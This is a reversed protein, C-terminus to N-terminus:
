YGIACGDKRPDSGGIFNGKQRDIFIAQGGGITEESFEVKHGKKILQNYVEKDISKELKYNNELIFGRPLDIAEQISLGFDFINQLIHSQGVPQYQGGMVGYSLIVKDEKDSVLGPIITHLPRKQGEIMNPHNRELRFNVGRNQLLVGTKTSTIGSGFAFCISNIFSVTNQDKDVVTLYITNPHATISHNKPKYTKNLSIKNVLFDIYKPDLLKKYNFNNFNPDGINDERQEYAIKTAEAQLHFRESSLPDINQFNFKELIAMMILVTIGPGNPPCQHIKIDKYNNSISDSFITDQNNFDDLTHLGGIENLSRVIDEAIYGNYFDKIGNTGIAKLTEALDINRHTDGFNYPNGNKLFISNTVKHGRLKNTNAHWHKAVVEHIPFGNRAYNEANVFLEKFDLHGYRQHMSYWAHIAGPITVSHPSTTEINKIKKNEFFDMNNKKPAKGSGNISIPKEGKISILAFCDGGIGTSNPEIVAQVASAAIAADIANGGIKLINIAELTSLPQSTAAM